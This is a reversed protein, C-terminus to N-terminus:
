YRPWQSRTSCSARARRSCASFSPEELPLSESADSCSTGSLSADFCVCSSDICAHSSPTRHGSHNIARYRPASCCLAAAALARLPRLPRCLKLTHTRRSARALATFSSESSDCSGLSKARNAYLNQLAVSRRGLGASLRPFGDTSSSM